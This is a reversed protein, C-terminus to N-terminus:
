LLLPCPHNYPIEEGRRYARLSPLLHFIMLETWHLGSEWCWENRVAHSNRLRIWYTHLTPLTGVRVLASKGCILALLCVCTGAPQM